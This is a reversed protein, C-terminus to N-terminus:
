DQSRGAGTRAGFAVAVVAHFHGLAALQPRCSASPEGPYGAWGAVPTDIIWTVAAVGRAAAGIAYTDANPTALRIAAGPM